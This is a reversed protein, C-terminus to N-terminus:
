WVPDNTDYTPTVGKCLTVEGWPEETWIKIVAGCVPCNVKGICKEETRIEKRKVELISSCKSCKVRYGIGKKVIKM